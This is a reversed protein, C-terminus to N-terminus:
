LTLMPFIRCVVVWFKTIETFQVSGNVSSEGIIRNERRDTNLYETFFSGVNVTPIDVQAVPHINLSLGDMGHSWLKHAVPERGSVCQIFISVDPAKSGYVSPSHIDGMPVCRVFIYPLSCRNSICRYVISLFAIFSIKYNPVFIGFKLSLAFINFHTSWRQIQSM